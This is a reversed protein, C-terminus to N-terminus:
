WAPHTPAHHLVRQLFRPLKKVHGKSVNTFWANAEKLATEGQKKCKDTEGQASVFAGWLQQLQIMMM